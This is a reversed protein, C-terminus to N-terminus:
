RTNFEVLKGRLSQAPSHERGLLDVVFKFTGRPV